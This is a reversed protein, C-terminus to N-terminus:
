GFGDGPKTCISAGFPATHWTYEDDPVYTPVQVICSFPSDNDSKGEPEYM